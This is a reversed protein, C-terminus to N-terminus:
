RRLEVGALKEYYRVLASHDSDGFEEKLSQMMAMVEGSLPTPADIAKATELINLNVIIASPKGEEQGLGSLRCGPQLRML